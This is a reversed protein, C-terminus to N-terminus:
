NPTPPVGGQAATVQAQIEDPTGVYVAAGEIGGMFSANIGFMSMVILGLADNNGGHQAAVGAPVQGQFTVVWSKGSTIPSAKSGFVM